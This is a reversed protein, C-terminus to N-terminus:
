NRKFARRRIDRNLKTMVDRQRNHQRTFFQKIAPVYRGWANRYLILPASVLSGAAELSEAAEQSPLDIKGSGSDYTTWLASAPGATLEPKGPQVSTLEAPNYVFSGQSNPAGASRGSMSPFPPNANVQARKLQSALLANELEARQMDAGHRERAMRLNEYQATRNIAEAELRESRDRTANLSRSIDQGAQALGDGLGSGGVSVPAYPVTQAGLAALPHLGAAKADAVKWRIGHQAFERQAELNAQQQSKASKDGLIGGIISTGASLIDGGSIGKVLGGVAKGISSFFGM